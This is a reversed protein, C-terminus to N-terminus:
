RPPHPIFLVGLGLMLVESGVALSRGGSRSRPSPSAPHAVQAFRPINVMAFRM